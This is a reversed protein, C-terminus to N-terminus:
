EAREHRVLIKMQAEYKKTLLFALLVAVSLIGLFSNIIVRRQRFGIELFGRLNFSQTGEAAAADLNREIM